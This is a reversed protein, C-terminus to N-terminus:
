KQPTVNMKFEYLRYTCSSLEHFHLFCEDDDQSCLPNAHYEKPALKESAVECGPTKKMEEIFEALGDRGIESEIDPAVYLFSGQGRCLGLVVQKLIPVISSQYILDSGIVFDIKEDPWTSRDEWNIPMANLRDKWSTGSPSTQQENLSINYHLNDVTIPNLDTVYVKSADSFNFYLHM